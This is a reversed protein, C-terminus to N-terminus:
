FSPSKEKKRFIKSVKTKIERGSLKIKRYRSMSETKLYRDRPKTKGIVALIDVRELVKQELLATALADLSSRNETLLDIAGRFAEAVMGEVEEDVLSLTKDSVNHGSRSVLQGTLKSIGWDEIAMRALENAQQLDNAAGSSITGIAVKEAARGGLVAILRQNVYEPSHLAKDKAGWVAMGAAQGRAIITARQVQEHEPCLEGCIVHGAEHYAIAKLEEPDQIHEPREPGALARLHGEKLDSDTIKKEGKRAAQIAAENLIHSLDAGTSGSTIKALADLDVDDALPKTKAYLDLIERRGKENPPLVPIHRSLRGPRLLAPDLTDLRNTAGIIVIKDAPAFGDIEVLLQNLTNDHERSGAESDGSRTRGLADIEDIFVVAGNESKKAKQFLDRITSAGVGVYKNVAESGAMHYFPVGAEGALARALLTKGTGPPGHLVAGSPMEAGLDLFKEREKLFLVFERIEEVAEPCGAVNNFTEKPLPVPADEPKTEETQNRKWLFFVLLMGGVLIIPILVQTWSSGGRGEISIISVTAGSKRAREALKTTTDPPFSADARSKDKFTLVAKGYPDLSFSRLRESTSAQWLKNYSISGNVAGAKAADTKKPNPDESGKTILFASVCVIAIFAMMPLIIKLPPSGM